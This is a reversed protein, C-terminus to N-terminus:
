LGRREREIRGRKEIRRIVDDALRDVAAPDLRVAPTPQAPHPTSPTLAADHKLPVSVRGDFEHRSLAGRELIRHDPATETRAPRRWVIRAPTPAFSAPADLTEERPTRATIRRSHRNQALSLPDTSVSAETGATAPSAPAKRHRHFIAPRLPIRGGQVSIGRRESRASRLAAAGSTSTEVDTAHPRMCASTAVRPMAAHGGPMAQRLRIAAVGYVRSAPSDQPRSDGTSARPAPSRANALARDNIFHWRETRSVAAPVGFRVHLHWSFHLHQEAREEILTRADVRQSYATFRSPTMRLPRRLRLAAARVAQHGSARDVGRARHQCLRAIRESQALVRM